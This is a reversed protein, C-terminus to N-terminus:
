PMKSLLQRVQNVAQEGKWNHSKVLIKGNREADEFFSKSQRVILEKLVALDSSITVDPSTSPGPNLQVRGGQLIELHSTESPTAVNVRMPMMRDFILKKGMSFPGSLEKRLKDELQACIPQLLSNLESM